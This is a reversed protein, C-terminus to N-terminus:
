GRRPRTSAAGNTEIFAKAAIDARIHRCRAQAGGSPANNAPAGKEYVAKRSPWCQGLCPEVRQQGISLPRM